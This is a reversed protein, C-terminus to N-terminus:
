VIPRRILPHTENKEIVHKKLHGRAPTELFFGAKGAPRTGQNEIM